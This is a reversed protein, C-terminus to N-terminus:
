PGIRQWGVVMANGLVFTRAPRKADPDLVAIPNPGGDLVRGNVVISRGDPSWIAPGGDWLPGDPWVENLGNADAVV